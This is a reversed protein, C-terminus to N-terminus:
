NFDTLHFQNAQCGAQCSSSPQYMLQLQTSTPKSDGTLSTHGSRHDFSDKMTTPIFTITGEPLHDLKKKNPFIKYRWLGLLQPPSLLYRAGHTGSPSCWTVKGVRIVIPM